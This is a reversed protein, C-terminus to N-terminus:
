FLGARGLLNSNVPDCLTCVVMAPLCTSFRVAPTFLVGMPTGGGGGGCRVCGAGCGGAAM